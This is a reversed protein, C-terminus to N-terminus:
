LNPTWKDIYNKEHDTIEKRVKVLKICKEFEDTDEFYRLLNDFVKLNYPEGNLAIRQGSIIRQYESNMFIDTGNSVIQEISIM